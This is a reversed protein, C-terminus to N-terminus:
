VTDQVIKVKIQKHDLKIFHMGPIYFVRRWSSKVRVYLNGNDRGVLHLVKKTEVKGDVEQELYVKM